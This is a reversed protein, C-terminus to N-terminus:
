KLNVQCTSINDDKFFCIRKFFIYIWSVLPRISWIQVLFLGSPHRLSSVLNIPILLIMIAFDYAKYLIMYNLELTYNYSLFPQTWCGQVALLRQFTTVCPVLKVTKLCERRWIKVSFVSNFSIQCACSIGGNYSLSKWFVICPSM